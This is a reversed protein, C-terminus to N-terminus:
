SVARALHRRVGPESRSSFRSRPPASASIARSGRSEWECWVLMEGRRDLAEAYVCVSVYLWCVRCVHTGIHPDTATDRQTYVM